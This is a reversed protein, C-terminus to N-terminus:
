PYFLYLRYGSAGAEGADMWLNIALDGNPAFGAAVQTGRPLYEEPSFVKRIIPRDQTDTLTLEIHPHAQAFPARNKLTTVLMLLNKGQPDPHLDSSEIGVLEPKRPLAISCDLLVCLEELMPRWDPQSVALEDRLFYASQAALLALGLMCAAGWAAARGRFVPRVLRGGDAEPLDAAAADDTESLISAATGSEGSEIPAPEIAPPVAEGAPSGGAEERATPLDVLSELANFVSQCHGCRVKGARAKLQEPTVRFATECSPCRTTLM